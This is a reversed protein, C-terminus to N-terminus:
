GSPTTWVVKKGLYKAADTTTKVGNIEIVIQNTTQTHRGRRYNIVVGKVM